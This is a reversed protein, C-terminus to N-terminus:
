KQAMFAEIEDIERIIDASLVESGSETVLVDDEIRIGIGEEKIYLGPEVTIVMGAKLVEGRHAMDHTDLGLHHGIGHYYYNGIEEDTKILGWTKLKQGLVKKTLDNLELLTVGPKIAQIVAQHADLVAQYVEKQRDTYTGNVPYTRSIDASYKGWAAGLDLLILDGDKLMKDNEEYHLVVANAGGVAITRFAKDAGNEMLTSEFASQIQYEMKEPALTNLVRKLGLGTIEIAKRMQDIESEDKVMRRKAMYPGLDYLPLAPFKPKVQDLFRHAEYGPFDWAFRELDLALSEVQYSNLMRFVQDKLSSVFATKEIGCVAKAEEPKMRYGTWKELNPDIDDLFLVEEGIGKPSKKLMLVFNERDIGTLYFFNRNVSFPYQEDASRYPAKGSFILALTGPKLHNMLKERRKIVAQKGEM